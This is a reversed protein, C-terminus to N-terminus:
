SQQGVLQYPCVRVTGTGATRWAKLRVEVTDIFAGDELPAPGDSFTVWADTVTHVDGWPVDGIFVQCAGTTGADAQLYGKVFMRPHQKVVLASWLWDPTESTTTAYRDLDAVPYWPTQLFPRALGGRLVDDAFLVNGQADLLRLPQPEELNETGNYVSIATSGDRRRIVTAFEGDNPPVFQGIRFTEVGTTPDTVTLQGGEGIKVDGNLVQNLAPRINARGEVARLRRELERIRDLLDQPIAAM